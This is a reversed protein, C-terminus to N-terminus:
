RDMHQRNVTSFINLIGMILMECLVSSLSNDYAQSTWISQWFCSLQRRGAWLVVSRREEEAEAYKEESPHDVNKVKKNVKFLYQKLVVRHPILWCMNLKIIPFKSANVIRKFNELYQSMIQANTQEFTASPLQLNLSQYNEVLPDRWRPSRSILSSYKILV